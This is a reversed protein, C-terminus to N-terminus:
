LAAAGAAPPVDAGGRGLRFITVVATYVLHRLLEPGHPPQHDEFDKVELRERYALVEVFLQEKSVFHHLIGQHTIGVREAIGGLSTKHFGRAAFVEHAAAIILERRLDASVRPAPQRTRGSTTM